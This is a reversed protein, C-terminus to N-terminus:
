ANAILTTYSYQLYVVHLGRHARCIGVLSTILVRLLMTYRAVFGGGGFQSAGAEYGGGGYM